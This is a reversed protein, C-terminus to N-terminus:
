LIAADSGGGSLHFCFRPPLNRLLLRLCHASISCPISPDPLRSFGCRGSMGDCTFFRSYAITCMLLGGRAARINGGGSAGAFEDTPGRALGAYQEVQHGSCCLARYTSFEPGGSRRRLRKKMTGLGNLGAGLGLYGSALRVSVPLKSALRSCAGFKQSIRNSYIFYLGCVPCRTACAADPLYVALSATSSRYRTVPSAPLDGAFEGVGIDM